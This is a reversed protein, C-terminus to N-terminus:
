PAIMEEIRNALMREYHEGYVLARAGPVTGGTGTIAYGDPQDYHGAGERVLAFRGRVRTVTFPQVFAMGCRACRRREEVVTSRGTKYLVPDGWAHRIRCAVYDDPLADLGNLFTGLSDPM